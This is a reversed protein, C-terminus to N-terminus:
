KFKMLRIKYGFQNKLTFAEEVLTYPDILNFWQHSPHMPKNSSKQLFDILHPPSM